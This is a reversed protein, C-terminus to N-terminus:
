AVQVGDAVGPTLLRWGAARAHACLVDALGSRTLALVSPGAGSIVAAVGSGRLREVMAATAPMEPARQRQHLRDETAALLLDPRQTLALVALASRGANFAADVHPVEEPLMGRTVETASEQAPVLVVPVIGPHM